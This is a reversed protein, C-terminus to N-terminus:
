KTKAITVRKKRTRTKPKVEVAESVERKLVPPPPIPPIIEEIDVVPTKQNPKSKVPFSKTLETTTKRMEHALSKIAQLSSRVRPAAAKKGGVLADIELECQLLHNRLVTAQDQLTTMTQNASQKKYILQIM